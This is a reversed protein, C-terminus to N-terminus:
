GSWLCCLVMMLLVNRELEDYVFM